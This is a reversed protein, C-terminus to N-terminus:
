TSDFLLNDKDLNVTQKKLGYGVVLFNNSYTAGFFNLKNDFSTQNCGVTQRDWDESNGGVSITKSDINIVADKTVFFPILIIM